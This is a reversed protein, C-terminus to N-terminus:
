FRSLIIKAFFNLLSESNGGFLGFLMLMLGLTQIKIVFAIAKIIESPLDVRKLTHLVLLVLPVSLFIFYFVLFWCYFSMPSFNTSGCM